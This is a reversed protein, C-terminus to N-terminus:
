QRFVLLVAVIAGLWLAVAALIPGDRLLIDEPAEGRNRHYVLYLYRFLGYAVLPITLMMAHNGPLNPATFTYLSYAILTAASVLAILQDLLPLSYDKLAERQALAADAGALALESRRKAFGILLAGLSTIVYLWPSVPASIVVAGAVARLVYGASLAMVDLLVARKLAFSYALTLALYLLAVGGFWPGLLFSLAAGGTGLLAATGVALPVPLAGSAIPRHRKRLHQRDRSADVLDNVLYVASSLLCFVLFGLTVRGLLAAAGGPDAPSWQENITFFFAFYLLANKTWQQPRAALALARLMALAAAPGRRGESGSVEAGRELAM